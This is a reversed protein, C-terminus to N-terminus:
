TGDGKKVLHPESVWENCSLTIIGQNLIDNFAQNIKAHGLSSRHSSAMYIPKSDVTDIQHCTLLNEQAPIAPQCDFLTPFCTWLPHIDYTCTHSLPHERICNPYQCPCLHFNTWAQLPDILYQSLSSTPHCFAPTGQKPCVLWLMLHWPPGLLSSRLFFTHINSPSFFFHLSSAYM